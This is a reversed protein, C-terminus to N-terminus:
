LSGCRSGAFLDIEYRPPGEDNWYCMAAVLVVVVIVAAAANVPM